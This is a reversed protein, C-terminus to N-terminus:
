MAEKINCIHACEQLEMYLGVTSDYLCDLFTEDVYMGDVIKMEINISMSLVGYVGMTFRISSVYDDEVRKILYQTINNDLEFVSVDHEKSYVDIIDAYGSLMAHFGSCSSIYNEGHLATEHSVGIFTRGYDDVEGILTFRKRGFVGYLLESNHYTVYSREIRVNSVEKKVPKALLETPIPIINAPTHAGRGSENKALMSECVYREHMASAIEQEEDYCEYRDFYDYCNGCIEYRMNTM